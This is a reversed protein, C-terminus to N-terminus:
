AKWRLTITLHCCDAGDVSSALKLNIGDPNYDVEVGSHVGTSKLLQEVKDKQGEQAASMVETAFEKSHSLKQLIVSAEKMLQQMAGASETFFTSDVPPYPRYMHEHHSYMAPYIPFYSNRPYYHPQPYQHYFM